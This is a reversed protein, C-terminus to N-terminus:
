NVGLERLYKLEEERAPKVAKWLLRKGTIDDFCTIFEDEEGAEALMAGQELKM